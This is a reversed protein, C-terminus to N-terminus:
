LISVIRKQGIDLCDSTGPVVVDPVNGFRDTHVVAITQDSFVVYMGAPYFVTNNVFLEVINRDLGNSTRICDVGEEITRKDHYSRLATFAEYVDAIGIIRGYESIDYWSLANPYGRGDMREHHQIIGSVVREPIDPYVSTIFDAGDVPHLKITEFEIDSLGGTKFILEKPTFRKGIDHLLASLALDMLARDDYRLLDGILVSLMCVNLSHGMTYDDLTDAKCISSIVHEKNHLIVNIFCLLKSRLQDYPIKTSIKGVDKKNFLIELIQMMDYRAQKMQFDRNIM